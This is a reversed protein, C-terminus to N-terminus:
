RQETSVGASVLEHLKKELNRVGLMKRINHSQMKPWIEVFFECKTCIGIKLQKYLVFGNMTFFLASM